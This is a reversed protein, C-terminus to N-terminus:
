IKQNGMLIDPNAIAVGNNNIMFATGTKGFKVQDTLDSLDNGDQAEALVGVVENNYKIPVAYTVLISGDTKNVLPDSVSSTGNMAKKFYDREKVNSTTGMTNTLNGDKDIYSLRNCGTRKVEDSLILLKDQLSNNPNNIDPRAAIAAVSNLEGEIRGQFNSATQEAIKPM